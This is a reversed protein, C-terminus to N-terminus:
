FGGAAAFTDCNKADGAELGRRFWSVRQEASGHTFSEPVVRGQSRRQITDDGVAAAARLGEELDGPELKVRGASVANNAWVGAYCDAQLEVLVSLQNAQERGVQQRYQSVKQSTGLLTQVHHGIEHAVVYAQATDGPAGFRRELEDFFSLDLYVKQDAPCYFPGSAAQAFGCASNVAGSFLVLRPEQYQSGSARFIGNWTEETDALVNSILEEREAEQPSAPGTPREYGGAPEEYGAGGGLGGAGDLVIRPDVGFFMAVLALVIVGIGGAGGIKAGPGFGGGGTGRRDEINSSRRGVTWRM